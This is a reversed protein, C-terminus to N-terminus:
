RTSVPALRALAADVVEDVAISSLCVHEACLHVKSDGPMRYCPSCPLGKFIVSHEPGKPANRPLDSPGWPVVTPTGLAVAIQMPGSDNGVLVRSRELVAALTPVDTAGVLDAFRGPLADVLGKILGAQEDREDSAGVLAFAVDPRQALRRVVAEFRDLGWQKWRMVESTGAHVAVLAGYGVLGREGLLESARRRSDESVHFFPRPDATGSEVGLAYALELYRDVEYQDREMVAPLNYLFDYPNPWGPSSVHGCRWPIQAFATVAVQFPYVVHFANVCLDFREDRLRRVDARREALPANPSIRIVRDVIEPGLVEENRRNNGVAVVLEADRFRGRIARLAPGYLVINGIGAYLPVLLKRVRAPEFTPSPLRTCWARFSWYAAERAARNVARRIM